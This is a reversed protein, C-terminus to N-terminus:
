VIWEVSVLVPGPRIQLDDVKSVACWADVVLVAHGWVWGHMRILGVFTIEETEFVQHHYEPINPILIAAVMVDRLLPELFLFLQPRINPVLHPVVANM